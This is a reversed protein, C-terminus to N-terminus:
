ADQAVVYERLAMLGIFVAEELRITRSGQGPLVNVWADFAQHASEKTLGEKNETSWGLRPDAAVAPELGTVGGFFVILHKFKAPLKDIGGADKHHGSSHSPINRPLIDFISVGRESTGISYDYGDAFPSETFVDSISEARRTTYGWYYGAEQRPASDSVPEVVLEATQKANLHPWNPPPSVSSFKLTTRMYPPIEVDVKVPHPFGCDLWTTPSQSKRKHKPTPEPLQIDTPDLAVAERYQCWEHAKMHHPLDLTPLTAAKSLNPHMPFIHQRLHGPCELFSVIHELFRDPHTYADNEPPLSALLDSKSSKAMKGKRYELQKATFTTPADDFIVIEDVCFVAAARAIRAALDNKQEFMKTNLLFSGPIALSLTWDRGKKPQFVATPRSTDLENINEKHTEDAEPAKVAQSSRRKPTRDDESQHKDTASLKRKKSQKDEKGM